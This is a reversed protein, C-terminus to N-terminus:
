GTDEFRNQRMENLNGEWHLKGELAILSKRRKRNVLEKLALNVLERKTKLNTLALGQEVLDDDLVINTRM